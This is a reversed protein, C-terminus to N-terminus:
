QKTNITSSVAVFNDYLYTAKELIDKESYMVPRNDEIWAMMEDKSPHTEKMADLKVFFITEDTSKKTELIGQAMSALDFRIEYPTKNSM